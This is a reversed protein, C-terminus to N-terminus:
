RGDNHKRQAFMRVLAATRSHGNNQAIESPRTGDQRPITPDAGHELLLQAVDYWGYRAALGLPTYGSLYPFVRSDESDTWRDQDRANPDAGHDLLYAILPLYPGLGPCEQGTKQLCTYTFAYNRMAEQLPTIDASGRANIDAGKELFLDIFPGANTAVAQSLPSPGDGVRNVTAGHSVLLSATELCARLLPDPTGHGMIVSILPHLDNNPNAGHMLLENVIPAKCGAGALGPTPDAGAQLLVKVADLHNWTAAVKLPLQPVPGRNTVAPANVSAGDRLAQMITQVDGTEAAAVLRENANGSPRQGLAAPSYSIVLLCTFQALQRVMRMVVSSLCAPRQPKPM